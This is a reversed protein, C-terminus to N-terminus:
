LGPEDWEIRGRVIGQDSIQLGSDSKKLHKLSLARRMKEVPRGFLV